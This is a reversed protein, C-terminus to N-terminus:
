QSQGGRNDRDLYPWISEEYPAASATAAFGALLSLALLASAMTKMILEKTARTGIRLRAREQAELLSCLSARGRETGPLNRVCCHPPKLLPASPLHGMANDPPRVPAM